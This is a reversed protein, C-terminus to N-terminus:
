VPESAPDSLVGYMTPSSWEQRAFKLREFEAQVHPKAWIKVKTNEAMSFSYGADLAAERDSLGVIKGSLFARHRRTLPGALSLRSAHDPAAARDGAPFNQGSQGLYYNRVREGDQWCLYIYGGKNRLHARSFNDGCPLDATKVFIEPTM